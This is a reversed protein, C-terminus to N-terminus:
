RADRVVLAGASRRSRALQGLAIVLVAGATAWTKGVVQGAMYDLSGFALALFIASDLAAGITNSLAVAALRSRERLPTYIAFDAVESVLFAVGSALALTGGLWASLAAGVGIGVVVWRRGGVDQLADRATLAVGALYVGAPAVLGFGVPVMGLAVIAWNAGVITLVYAALVAVAGVHRM